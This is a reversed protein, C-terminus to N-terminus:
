TALLLIIVSIAILSIGLYERTSIKEGFYLYTILLSVVFETQGLTKVIAANQLSMATFWGVSGAVSTFGVFTCAGLNNMILALQEREKLYIWAFCILTQLVVMYALVAAATLIRPADISLSADRIWLSALAFGLGAGIGYRISENDSLDKFTVKWNSAVLLGVVGIVVSLYGLVSLAASFFLSGLVATLIAETKALATGVAFNKLTLAKILCITALIQSIGALAGSQFFQWHLEFVEPRYSQWVFYLYILAFKIGFLFRVLTAAQISLRNALQKQAATRISQMVVALLTFVIWTEM